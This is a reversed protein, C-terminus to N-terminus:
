FDGLDDDLGELLDDGDDLQAGYDPMQKQAAHQPIRRNYDVLARGDNVETTWGQPVDEKRSHLEMHNIERRPVGDQMGPFTHAINGATICVHHGPHPPPLKLVTVDRLIMISHVQPRTQSAFCDATMTGDIAGSPDRLTVLWDGNFARRLSQVAVVVQGPLKESRGLQCATALSTTQTQCDAPSSSCPLQRCKLAQVFHIFIGVNSFSFLM